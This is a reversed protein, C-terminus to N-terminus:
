DGEHDEEEEEGEEAMEEQEEEPETNGEESFESENDSDAAEAEAEVGKPVRKLKKVPEKSPEIQVRKRAMLAATVPARVELPPSSKTYKVNKISSEAPKHIVDPVVPFVPRIFNENNTIVPVFCPLYPDHEESRRLYMKNPKDVNYLSIDYDNVTKSLPVCTVVFSEEKRGIICGILLWNKINTIDSVDENEPRFFILNNRLKRLLTGRRAGPRMKTEDLITRFVSVMQGDVRTTPGFMRLSVKHITETSLHKYGEYFPDGEVRKPRKVETTEPDDTSRKRDQPQQQQQQSPPKQLPDSHVVTNKPPSPQAPPAPPPSPKPVDANENGIKKSWGVPLVSHAGLNSLFREYFTCIQEINEISDDAAIRERFFLLMDARTYPVCM